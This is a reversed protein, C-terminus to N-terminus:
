SRYGPRWEDVSKKSLNKARLYVMSAASQFAHGGGAIIRAAWPAGRSQNVLGVDQASRAASATMDDTKLDRM